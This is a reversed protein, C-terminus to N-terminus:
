NKFDGRNFYLSPFENRPVEAGFQIYSKGNDTIVDFELANGSSPQRGVTVQTRLEGIGVEWIQPIGVPLDRISYALPVALASCCSSITILAALALEVARASKLLEHSKTIRLEEEMEM